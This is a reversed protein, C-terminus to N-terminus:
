TIFIISLSSFSIPISGSAIISKIGPYEDIYGSIQPLSFSADAILNKFKEQQLLAPEIIGSFRKRLDEYDSFVSKWDMM